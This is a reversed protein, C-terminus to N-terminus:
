ANRKRRRVVALGALGICALAYTSPEPVLQLYEASSDIIGLDIPASNSGLVIGGAGPKGGIYMQAYGGGDGDWSVFTFDHAGATLFTEMLTRSNGTGYQANVTSGGDALTTAGVNEGELISFQAGDITLGFGDDSQVFFRVWGDAPM